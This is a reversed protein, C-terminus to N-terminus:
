RLRVFRKGPLQRALRRIELVLLGASVEAPSMEAEATIDDIDRPDSSLHGLLRREVPALGPWAATDPLSAAEPGAPEDGGPAGNEPAVGDDTAAHGRPDDKAAEALRLVDASPGIEDLIDAPGEVLKAGLKILSHPGRALPSDVKGPVAFVERGQDLAAHATILAGSRVNGEVVLVGLSLGAIIRNRRPFNDRHPEVGMAFESVIAGRQAIEEALAANEPPYISELGNGLVAITRGGSSLAGRHAASDIGRALGSVITFGLGALHSSIREAQTRGYYSCRRSGVVGLALGDRPTIEGKVYLVLPPDFITRLARPYADHEVTMVTVGRARAAELEREALRMTDERSSSMRRASVSGIGEIEALRSHPAALAAEPSGFARVLKKYTVPGIGPTVHLRLVAMQRENM